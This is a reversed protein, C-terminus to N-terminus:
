WTAEGAGMGETNWGMGRLFSPPSLSGGQGLWQRYIRRLAQM